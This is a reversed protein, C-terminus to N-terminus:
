SLDSVRVGLAQEAERLWGPQAELNRDSHTFCRETVIDAEIGRVRYSHM